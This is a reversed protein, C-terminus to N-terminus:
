CPSLKNFGIDRVWKMKKEGKDYILKMSEKKRQVARHGIDVLIFFLFEIDWDV